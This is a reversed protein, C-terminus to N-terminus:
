EISLNYICDNKTHWMSCGYFRHRFNSSVGSKKLVTIAGCLPCIPAYLELLFDVMDSLTEETVYKIRESVRFLQIGCDRLTKEIFKDREIKEPKNHYSDDLEVAFLIDLSEGACVLFDIHKYAINYFAKRDFSLSNDLKIFDAVRVMPFIFVHKDICKLKENFVRNMLKFLTKEAYTMVSKTSTYPNERVCKLRAQREKYEASARSQAAAILENTSRPIEIQIDDVVPRDAIKEQKDETQIPYGVQVETKAINPDSKQQKSKRKTKKKRPTNCIKVGSDVMSIFSITETEHTNTEKIEQKSDM